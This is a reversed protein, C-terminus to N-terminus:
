LQVPKAHCSLLTPDGAAAPQKGQQITPCAELIRWVKMGSSSFKGLSRLLFFLM